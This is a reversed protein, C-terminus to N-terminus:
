RKAWQPAKRARKLGFKKRERMRPDRTLYGVKRLRKKFNNNFDVLVRATGHRIAEAQANRGGGKVVVTIKFKDLCKMKRMSATATQQDESLPFYEQYTKDNVLFQKEGRTFLRVRAVATKRRGVGEFYRDPKSALEKEM